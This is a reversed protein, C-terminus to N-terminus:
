KPPGQWMAKVIEKGAALLQEFVRRVKRTDAEARLCRLFAVAHAQDMLEMLGPLLYEQIGYVKGPSVCVPVAGALYDGLQEEVAALAEAIQKEKLRQPHQWDYPPTWEMKPSLLDIHTVVALIPPRKLEPQADFWTRLSKLVDLDAQRAPNVAQVVLLLVDSKRSSEQTAKLQDQRPGTHGYGVTDFITLQTPLNELKLEYRTVESTEPLVSTAARQAGLLANVLSSKGAKVQGILTLAVRAVAEAPEAESPPAVAAPTDPGPLVVTHRDMLERYRRAGVRLRGSHLEILYTGLRHVYSTYFWLILNEQLKQFPRSMGVQSALYRVGTNIPSFVSSIIWYINSATQYWDAAQRAKKWDNVTLLHGAPLYKDVMEALDHSALEVVALMEPITLSGIPDQAGPHYFRALELGMEQATDVYFQVSSLTDANLKAGARARAEVLQWAQKDRDTWHPLATFDARGVLKDKRQWHWALLYASVFCLVMAWGVWFSWGSLWLAYSGYAILFVFPAAFLLGLVLLRWNRRVVDM